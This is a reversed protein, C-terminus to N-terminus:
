AALGCRGRGVRSGEGWGEHFAPRHRSGVDPLTELPQNSTGSCFEAITFAARDQAGVTEVGSAKIRRGTQRAPSEASM